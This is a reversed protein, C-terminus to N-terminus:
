VKENQLCIQRADNENQPYIWDGMMRNLGTFYNSMLRNMYFYIVQLYVM